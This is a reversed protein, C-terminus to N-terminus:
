FRYVPGLLLAGTFRPVLDVPLTADREWSAEAGLELRGAVSWHPNIPLRGTALLTGSPELFYANYKQGDAGTATSQATAVKAHLGLSWLSPGVEVGLGVPFRDGDSGSRWGATAALRVPGIIKLRAMLEAEGKPVEGALGGGGLLGLELARRLVARRGRRLTRRREPTWDVIRPAQGTRVEALDGRGALVEGLPSKVRVHGQRVDVTGGGSADRSVLFRTGEVMAAFVEADVAFEARVRYLVAGARQVWTIAGVVVEAGPYLTIAGDQDPKLTIVAGRVVVVDGDNLHLGVTITTPEGNAPTVWSDPAGVKRGLPVLEGAHDYVAISEVVAGAHAQLLFLLLWM